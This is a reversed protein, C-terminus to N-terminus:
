GNMKEEIEEIEIPINPTLNINENQGILIDDELRIGIGEEKIYIGPEVTLVMGVAMPTNRDALDHVDLGLHHSTGHMYFKKYLPKKPDQNKLDSHKLLGLEVLKQEMLEGIQGNYEKLTLGPSLLDTAKNKIDLVAQYVQRQRAAFGGNIPFTRTVDANYNAFEAGVDLLVLNGDLCQNNNQEYHLVCANSGSAVIPNYAFGRSRNKIFESIFEAEIEYEWVGPKIFKMVRDFGNKSIEGARKVLEWETQSKIMRLETLIPILSVPEIESHSTIFERALRENKSLPFLESDKEQFDLYVQDINQVLEGLINEFEKSWKVQEIGSISSAEELNVKEGEWVAIQENTEKVFLMERHGKGSPDSILLLFSDEQNIGTLYFFNSDQRYPLVGDGSLRQPDASHVIVLSAPKLKASLGQRNNKFLQNDIPPYRM